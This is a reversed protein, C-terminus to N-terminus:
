LFVIFDDDDDMQYDDDEDEEDVMDEAEMHNVGVFLRNFCNANPDNFHGYPNNRSLM